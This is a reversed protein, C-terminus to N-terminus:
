MFSLLEKKNKIRHINNKGNLLECYVRDLEKTHKKDWKILDFLSKISENGTNHIKRKIFRVLLRKIRVKRSVVVYFVLDAENILDEIWSYYVGDTIWSKNNLIAKLKNNRDEENRKINYTGTENCWFIEDLDYHNINYKNSLLSAFTSKGCGSPGILHIKM